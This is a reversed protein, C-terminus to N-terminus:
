FTNPSQPGPDNPIFVENGDDGSTALAAVAVGILALGAVARARGTAVTGTAGPGTAPPGPVGVGQTGFGPSGITQGTGFNDPFQTDNVLRNFLENRLDTVRKIEQKIVKLDEPDTIIAIGMKVPPKNTSKLDYSVYKVQGQSGLMGVDEAPALEPAETAPSVLEFSLAAFGDKGAAFLSYIGPEVAEIQFDGNEEVPVRAVELDDQILFINMETLEAPDGDETAIPQIRGNFNGEEDLPFKFGGHIDTAKGIAKLDDVDRGISLATESPLYNRSIRELTSFEPPVAAADIQLEEQVEADDPLGFHSVYYSRKAAVPDVQTDWDIEVLKPLVHVGYALFGNQGAAVLTFVGPEVDELVFRGEDDTVAVSIKEGKRLLTVDLNEIPIATLLESDIASIRGTLNGDENTKIWHPELSESLPDDDQQGVVRIASAKLTVRFVKDQHQAIVHDIALVGNFVIAPILIFWYRSITRRILRDSASYLSSTASNSVSRQKPLNTKRPDDNPFTM